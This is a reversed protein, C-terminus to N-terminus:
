GLALKSFLEVRRNTGFAIIAVTPAGDFAITFISNM